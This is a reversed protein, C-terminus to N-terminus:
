RRVRLHSVMGRAAHDAKTCILTYLGPRRLRVVLTSRAGPRVEASSAVPAGRATLVRLDHSDEGRNTVNFRLTGARVVPRYVAIRYEREGVGIATSPGATAAVAAPAACAVTGLACCAIARLSV